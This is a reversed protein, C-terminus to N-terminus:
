VVCHSKSAVGSLMSGQVRFAHVWRCLGKIEPIRRTFVPVLATRIPFELSHCLVESFGKSCSPSVLSAEGIFAIFATTRNPLPEPRRFLRQGTGPESSHLIGSKLDVGEDDDM